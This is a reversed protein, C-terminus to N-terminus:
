LPLPSKGTPSAASDLFAALEDYYSGPQEDNHGCHLFELWKKNCSPSAEFLTRALAIPILDDNCGHCQLLPGTYSKIRSLNNYRNKMVWRVPLWPYHLQAVDPMTPFANQLVLARAGNESALAVAVASGLSRGMVIVDSPQIGLRSALWHQAANGDAICGAENPCGESHGYGRYDFVFVSAHLVDRLHAAVEGVAAVDEGNGHCYLVARQPNRPSPHPVFWGHLKTGDASTFHVDEYAFGKPKWDGWELPPIPYVLWTELFMMGLVIVLYALVIPRAIRWTISAWRRQASNAFETNV